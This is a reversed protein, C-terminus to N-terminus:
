PPMEDDTSISREHLNSKSIALSFSPTERCEDEHPNKNSSVITSYNTDDQPYAPPEIGFKKRGMEDAGRKYKLALQRTKFAKTRPKQSDSTKNSDGAKTSKRTQSVSRSESNSDNESARKKRPVRVNLAM